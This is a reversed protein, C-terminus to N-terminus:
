RGIELWAPSQRIFAHRFTGRPKGSALNMSPRSKARGRKGSKGSFAIPPNGSFQMVWASGAKSIRIRILNERDDDPLAVPAPKSLRFVVEFPLMSACTPFDRLIPTQRFNDRVIRPLYSDVCFPLQVSLQTSAASQAWNQAWWWVRCLAVSYRRISTLVRFRQVQLVRYCKM